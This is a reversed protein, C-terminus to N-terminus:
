ACAGGARGKGASACCFGPGGGACEPGANL